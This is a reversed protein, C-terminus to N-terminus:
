EPLQSIFDHSYLWEIEQRSLMSFIIPEEDIPIRTVTEFEYYEGSGNTESPTVVITNEIRIGHSGEVYVAPENSM